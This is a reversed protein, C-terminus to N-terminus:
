PIATPTIIRAPIPVTTGVWQGPVWGTVEAGAEPAWHVQYWEGFVALLEVTQGRELIVGLRPSGAFPGGRLWVNGTVLGIV